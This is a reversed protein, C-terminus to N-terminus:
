VPLAQLGILEHAQMQAGVLEIPQCALSGLGQAIHSWGCGWHHPHHCHHPCQWDTPCHGQLSCWHHSQCRLTTSNTKWQQTGSAYSSCGTPPLTGPGPLFKPVWPILADAERKESLCRLLVGDGITIPVIFNLLLQFLPM